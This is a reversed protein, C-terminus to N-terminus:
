GLPWYQHERWGRAQERCSASDLLGSSGPMVCYRSHEPHLLDIIVRMAPGTLMKQGRHWRFGAMNVTFPDGDCPGYESTLGWGLVPVAALPHGLSLHHVRGWTWDALCDGWEAALAAVEACFEAQVLSARDQAALPCRAWEGYWRLLVQPPQSGTDLFIGLLEEGLIEGFFRRLLRWLLRHFLLAGVSEATAHCDWALLLEAASRTLEDPWRGRLLDSRLGAGFLAVAYGSLLDGQLEACADADWDQRSLLRQRIRAARFPPECHGSLSHPYEGGLVLRNNASSAIGTSPQFYHPLQEFPVLHPQSPDAGAWCTGEAHPDRIGYHHPGSRKPIGGAVALGIDGQRDAYHFVSCPATILSLAERFEPWSRARNLRYWAATEQTLALSTWGLSLAHGTDTWLPSADSLLPGRSTSRVTCLLPEAGRVAISETRETLPLWERGELYCGPPGGSLRELFLDGDDAMASTIGWAIEGNTGIAIGPTGPVAFGRLSLGPCTLAIPQFIGPQRLTLHPDNALLAGGHSSRSGDIVWANSGTPASGGQTFHCTREYMDELLRTPSSGGAAQKWGLFATVSPQHDAADPALWAPDLGKGALHEALLSHAIDFKWAHSLDFAMAKQCLIVQWPEWPEPSFGLLRVETPWAVSGQELWRNVGSTYAEVAARAPEPVVEWCRRANEAIGVTRMFRDLQPLSVNELWVAPASPGALSDGFIEALRGAAWRRTVEMSWFWEAATVYGQAFLLDTEDAATIEAMGGPAYRLTFSGHLACIEHQRRRNLVRRQRWPLRALGGVLAALSPPFLSM